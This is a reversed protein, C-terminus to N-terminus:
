HNFKPSTMARPRRETFSGSPMLAAMLIKQRPNELPHPIEEVEQGLVTIKTGAPSLKHPLRQHNIGADSGM